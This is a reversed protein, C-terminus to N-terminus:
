ESVTDVKILSTKMPMLQEIVESQVKFRVSKVRENLRKAEVENSKQRATYKAMMEAYKAHQNRLRADDGIEEPQDRDAAIVAQSKDPAAETLYSVNMRVPRVTENSVAAGIILQYVFGDRMTATIMEPNALGIAEDSLAPDYISEYPMTSLLLLVKQIAAQNISEKETVRGVFYNGDEDRRIIYEDKMGAIALQQIQGPDIAVVIRDRDHAAAEDVTTKNESAAGDKRDPWFVVGAVLVIGALPIIIKKYLM